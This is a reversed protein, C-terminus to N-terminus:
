SGSTSSCASTSMLNDASSKPDVRRKRSTKEIKQTAEQQQFLHVENRSANLILGLELEKFYSLPVVQCNHHKNTTCFSQLSEADMDGAEAVFAGAIEKLKSILPNTITLLEALNQDHVIQMIFVAYDSTSDEETVGLVVGISLTENLSGNLSEPLACLKGGLAIKLRQMESNKEVFRWSDNPEIIKMIMPCVDAVSQRFSSSYQLTSTAVVSNDICLDMSEITYLEHRGGTYSFDVIINLQITM